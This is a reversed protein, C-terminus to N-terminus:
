YKWNFDGVYMVNSSCGNIYDGYRSTACSIVLSYNGPTPKATKDYYYFEVDRVTEDANGSLYILAYGIIKGQDVSTMGNEPNWMGSPKNAGATVGRRSTWDVIVAYISAQDPQGKPIFSGHKVYDVNGIQTKYRITMASPRATFDYRKGFSVTGNTGSQSFTGTFLNGPGFMQAFSTLTNYEAAIKAGQFGSEYKCLNSTSGNNGSGWFNAESTNSNGYCSLGGDNLTPIADGNPTTFTQTAQQVGQVSAFYEYTKGAWIGTTPDPRYVTSDASNTLESWSPAAEASFTYDAGKVAEVTKWEGGSARYDFSVTAISPDTIIYKLQATNQWLDYSIPMLGQVAVRASAKGEVGSADRMVFALSQIGAPMLDFFAQDLALIGTFADISTYSIGKAAADPDISAGSNLVNFDTGNANFSMTSIADISTVRFQIPTNFYGTVEDLSFGEGSLTPQPSFIFGDDFKEEYDRASIAVSLYGDPTKSYKFTLTYQKGGVPAPIVGTKEVKGLIAGEGYFGYSINTVDKPLLFFGTTDSLYKLTPVSNNVAETKSFENAASVYALHNKELKDLITRDFEVRVAINTIKCKIMVIQPQQAVLTFSEEGYYTKNTFTAETKDGAEITVKYDGGILYLDTPTETAPYYKRILQPEGQEFKYVRLTSRELADYAEARTKGPLSFSLQLCGMGEGPTPDDTEKACAATLVALGALLMYKLIKKM